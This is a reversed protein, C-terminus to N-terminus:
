PKRKKRAEATRPAKGKQIARLTDSEYLAGSIDTDRPAAEAGVQLRPDGREFSAMGEGRQVLQGGLRADAEQALNMTPHGPKKFMLGTNPSRSYGHQGTEPNGGLGERAAQEDKYFTEERRSRSKPM